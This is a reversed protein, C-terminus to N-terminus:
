SGVRILPHLDIDPRPRITAGSRATAERLLRDALDRLRESTEPHNMEPLLDAVPLACHPYRMLDPDPIHHPRGNAPTYDFVEDDYLVIDLDITRPAYRDATRRRGLEREIHDLLGDKLGGASEDTMLLIAANFYAPQDSGDVPASEYVASVNIVTAAEALLRVAAPLNREKDINSGLIVAARHM